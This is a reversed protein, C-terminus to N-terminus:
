GSVHGAGARHHSPRPVHGRETAHRVVGVALEASVNLAGSFPDAVGPARYSAGIQRSPAPDENPITSIGRRGYPPLPITDVHGGLVADTVRGVLRTPLAEARRTTAKRLTMQFNGGPQGDHDGDIPRDQADLTRAAVITLRLPTAGGKGRPTLTVTYNSPDYTASILGVARIAYAHCKKATVITALRYDGLTQATVPDLAGSFNIVLVKSTKRKSLKLTQWHIGLVTVPPTPTISLTGNV